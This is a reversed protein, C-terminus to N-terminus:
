LVSEYTRERIDRAKEVFDALTNITRLAATEGESMRIFFRKELALVVRRSDTSHLGLGGGFLQTDDDIDEPQLDLQLREVLERKIDALVQHRREIRAKLPQDMPTRKAGTCSPLATATGGNTPRASIVPVQSPEDSSLSQPEQQWLDWTTRWDSERRILAHCQGFETALIPWVATFGLSQTLICSAARAAPYLLWGVDFGNSRIIRCQAEDILMKLIGLKRFPKVIALQAYRAVRDKSGFTLHYRQHLGNSQTTDVVSLAGIGNGSDDRALLHWVGPEGPTGLTAYPFRWETTFVQTRIACITAWQQRTTAEEIQIKM